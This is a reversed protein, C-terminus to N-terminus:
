VAAWAIAAAVVLLALSGLDRAVFVIPDDHMEGRGAKLWLRGLGVVILPSLLWLFEPNAYRMRGAESDVYLAMVLSAVLGSGCGLAMVVPMDEVRYARGSAASRQEQKMVALEAFRKILALCLFSYACFSLLWSSLPLGCAVAGAVVRVTYLWALAAVDFFLKQKLWVSYLTTVVVYSLLVALFLPGLWAGLALAAALLLPIAVLGQTIPLRGAAFPRKRKRPHARDASLDSLDNLVYVASAAFGFALFAVGARVLTDAQLLTHAAVPGVFVLLNKVWQYLRLAKAWSRLREASRPAPDFEAVVPGISAAARAVGSSAGVIVIGQSARWVPLDAGDNGAYDFGRAGFAESLARAKASSSLNVTETAFVGSFLGLHGAVAEGISRHAATALYLPRRRGEQRLWALFSERYPLLAPDLSQRVAIQRKLNAKGAFLWWLMAFLTWPARRLLALASEVLTDSCVLTGDLDVCLPTARLTEAMAPNDGEVM